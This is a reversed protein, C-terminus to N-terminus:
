RAVAVRAGLRIDSTTVHARGIPVGNVLLEYPGRAVVDGVVRATRSQRLYNFGWSLGGAVLVGLVLLWTTGDFGTRNDILRDLGWAVIIPLAADMLSTLVVMGSALLMSPLEPRFYGLIRGVLRRDDYARDYSEAELGDMIFGM